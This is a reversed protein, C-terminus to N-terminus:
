EEVAEELIKKLKPKLYTIIYEALAKDTFDYCSKGSDFSLTFGGGIEEGHQLTIGRAAEQRLRGLYHQELLEMDKKNLSVIIDSRDTATYKRLIESLLGSVAEPTLTQRVDSIVIRGLMANIEGRLSLLLDRGSQALLAREREDERRIRENAASIMAEAETQARSLIADAKQRAENEITKAKEEAARIGEQNIKEILDRIEEPM